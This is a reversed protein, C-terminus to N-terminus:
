SHDPGDNSLGGVMAEISNATATSLRWYDGRTWNVLFERGCASSGTLEVMADRSTVARVVVYAVQPVSPDCGESAPGSGHTAAEATLAALAAAGFV